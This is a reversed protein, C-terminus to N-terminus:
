FRIKMQISYYFESDVCTPWSTISEFAGNGGDDNCKVEFTSKGPHYDLRQGEPCIYVASEGFRIETEDTYGFLTLTTSEPTPPAGDCAM